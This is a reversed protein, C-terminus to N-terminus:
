FKGSAASERLQKIFAKALISLPQGRPLLLYVPIEVNPEFPLVCTGPFSGNRVALRDVLAIGAGSRVMACAIASLEVEVAIRRIVGANQFQKDILQGIPLMRSFSVLPVNDLDSITIVKKQACPHEEPMIAVLSTRCLEERIVDEREPPLFAVGFDVQREAVSDVIERSLQTSVTVSVNQRNKTFNAVTDAVLTVTTSPIAGIRVRGKRLRKLDSAVRQIYDFNVFIKEIDAALLRVESTPSLRGGKRHFLPIGLVDETHSLIRSVAPQSIELMRGAETLSGCQLIARIVELQRLSLNAM